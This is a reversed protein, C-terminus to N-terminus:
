DVAFLKLSGCWIQAVLNVFGDLAQEFNAALEIGQWNKGLSRYVTQKTVGFSARWAPFNTFCLAFVEGAEKQTLRKRCYCSRGSRFDNLLTEVEKVGYRVQIRDVIVRRCTVGFLQARIQHNVSLENATFSVGVM